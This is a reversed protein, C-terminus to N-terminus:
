WSMTHTTYHALVMGMDTRLGVVTSTLERSSHSDQQNFVHVCTHSIFLPIITHQIIVNTCPKADHQTHDQMTEDRFLCNIFAHAVTLYTTRPVSRFLCGSDMQHARVLGSLALLVFGCDRHMAM